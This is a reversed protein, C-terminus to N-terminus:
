KGLEMTKLLEHNITFPMSERLEKLWKAHFRSEKEYFLKAEIEKMAEPLSRIGETRRELVQLIHFGYPSEVVASLKGVPLSFLARELTEDLDGKAIWVGEHGGGGPSAQKEPLQEMAKGQSVGKLAEEAEPKTNTVIQRFRVMAPHSFEDKHSEYYERIEPFSVPEVKESVKVAIKRMLLQERLATKWQPFDTDGQLLAERFEQDSYDRRIETLASELEEDTIKIGQQRGYELVLYHDLVQQVLAEFLQEQGDLTVGAELAARKLDTKLEKVTVNRPGM